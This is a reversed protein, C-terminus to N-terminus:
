RVELQTHGELSFGLHHQRKLCRMLTLRLKLVLLELWKKVAILQLLCVLNLLSVLKLNKSITSYRLWFFSQYLSQYSNGKIGTKWV